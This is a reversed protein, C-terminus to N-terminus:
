NGGPNDDGGPEDPDPEPPDPGPPTPPDPPDPTGAGTIRLQISASATYEPMIIQGEGTASPVGMVATEIGANYTYHVTLTTTGSLLPEIKLGEGDVWTVSAVEPDSVEIVPIVNNVYVANNTAPIGYLYLMAEATNDRNITFATNIISSPNDRQTGFAFNIIKTDASCKTCFTTPPIVGMDKKGWKMDDRYPVGGAIYVVNPDKYVLVKKVTHMCYETALLGTDQCILFERHYTDSEGPTTGDVFYETIVASGRPDKETLATPLRGSVKDVSGQVIGPPQEPLYTDYIGKRYYFDRMVANWFDRAVQSTTDLTLDYEVGNVIVKRQDYGMWFAATYDRTFGCYWVCAAYDTTGTKGAAQNGNVNDAIGKLVDTVLWATTPKIVQITEQQSELIVNGESDTVYRYFTPTTRTGMNPFTSFASAMTLPTQGYTFGGLALASSNLDAEGDWEIEYGFREAYAACLEHGTLYETQIAIMNDSNVLGERVTCLGQYDYAFNMPTWGGFSLPISDFTTALTVTGTDIAPAYATCPKTSSGTQFKELARNMVLSGEKKRGGIIGVVYSTSNQIVAGGIEPHYEVKEGTAETMVRGAEEAEWTQDPFMDDISAYYDLAAQVQPDITSYISIGGNLMLNVAEDYDMGYKEQLDELVEEYVADTFFTYDSSWHPAVLGIRNEKIEAIAIEYERESIHGLELMKDIINMAREKSPDDQVIYTNGEEDTERVLFSNGDEDETYKYPNYYTPAKMIAALTAAQAISLEKVDKGFYMEAASQVGWAYSLNIKNLYSQLIERKTLTQELEYALRWEKIKRKITTESSLHTQKILQQTITSGGMGETSGSTIVGIVAKLTGRIDVGFHSYFRQDEISVFALQILEPVEQITVNERKESTQLEQYFNGNIDYVVSPDMFTLKALDLPPAESMIKWIYYLGGGGALMGLILVTVIMTVIIRKWLPKKSKAKRRRKRRSTKKGSPAESSEGSADAASAAAVITKEMDDPDGSEDGESAPSVPIVITEDNDLAETEPVHTERAAKEPADEPDPASPVRIQEPGSASSSKQSVIRRRAKKEQRSKDDSNNDM